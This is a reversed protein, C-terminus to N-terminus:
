YQIYGEYNIAVDHSWGKFHVVHDKSEDKPLQKMTLDSTLAVSIGLSGLLFGIQPM